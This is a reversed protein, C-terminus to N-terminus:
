ADSLDAPDVQVKHEMCTTQEAVFDAHPKDSWDPSWGCIVCRPWPGNEDMLALEADTYDDQPQYTSESTM